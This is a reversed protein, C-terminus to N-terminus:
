ARVNGLGEAETMISRIADLFMQNEEESGVTVRLCNSLLVHTGHLNKVLIKRELLAGFVTSANPVRFTLFNSDSQYVVVGRIARLSDFLIGRLRVTDRAQADLVDMHRLLVHMARQTFVNINYPLRLKDLQEIWEPHGAVLGLRMGALGLKSMTRMVLLNAHQTLDNVFTKGGAFACYAEDVVVLGRAKAIIRLVADREFLNGTPNNPYSLFVLSPDFDEIAKEVVSTDLAFEPTLSVTEFRLGSIASSVQYMVFSPSVGLVVAGPRAVAQCLVQIIEDSGNGLMVGACEPIGSAVKLDHKLQEPSPDPYRNIPAGGLAQALERRIGLPLPYPNEMADLKIMGRSDQVHYGRWGLLEPRLTSRVRSAVETNMCESM